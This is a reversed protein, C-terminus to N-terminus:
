VRSERGREEVFRLQRSSGAAFRRFPLLGPARATGALRRSAAGPEGRGRLGERPGPPLGGSLAWGRPDRSGRGYSAAPDRHPPVAGRRGPEPGPPPRPGRRRRAGRPTGPEQRGSGGESLGDEMLAKRSPSRPIYHRASGWRGASEWQLVFGALYFATGM